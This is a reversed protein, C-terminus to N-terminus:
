TNQAIKNKREDGYKERSNDHVHFSL